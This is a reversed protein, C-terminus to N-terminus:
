RARAARAGRSVVFLALAAALLVLWAWSAKPVLVSPITEDITGRKVLQENWFDQLANAVGYVFMLAVYFQLLASRAVRSLLLASLALLMGDTGHHHGLHVAAIEEGAPVEEALIPDPGYFGLEALLWPISGVLVVLAAAVRVADFRTPRALTLNPRGVVTAAIALGVGLAPLVNVLRADLDDQDVVGPFATVACLVIAVTCVAPALRRELLVGCIGIAVLAIPFNLLVLTRGLGGALGDVSVHYLEDTPV